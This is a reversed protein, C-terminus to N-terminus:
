HKSRLNGIRGPLQKEDNKVTLRAMVNGQSGTQGDFARIFRDSSSKNTRM